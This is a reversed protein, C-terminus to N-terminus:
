EKPRAAATMEGKIGGCVVDCPNEFPNRKKEKKNKNGSSFSDVVVVVKRHIFLSKCGV